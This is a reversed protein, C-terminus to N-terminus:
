GEPKSEDGFTVKKAEIIDGSWPKCHKIIGGCRLCLFGEGDVLRSALCVYCALCGCSGEYPNTIDTQASGVIGSSIMMAQESTTPNQEQYCIACTREPLFSLEGGDDEAKTFSKAKRWVKNM